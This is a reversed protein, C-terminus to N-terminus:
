EYNNKIKVVKSKKYSEIASLAVELAHISEYPSFQLKEKGQVVRIFHKLENYLPEQYEVKAEREWQKDQLTIRQELFDLTAVGELGVVTLKRVKHPTLWNTEIVGANGNRFRLMLSAHDEFSHFESGAIAYVEKVRENYLFSIIDIDHTGLDLIVGVDYNRPTFPGVRKCSISAIEGLIGEDIINKLKLVAPNFREIHGVLIKKNKQEAKKVIELADKVRGAIPKEVLVNTGAELADLSIKKHLTTPVVVSVIDLERELLKKYDTYPTTNYKQALAKVLDKNIDAIGVLEVEPIQSYVKIHNKGMNGCGIVGVKLPRKTRKGM